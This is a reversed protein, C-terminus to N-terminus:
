AFLVPRLEQNHQYLIKGHSAEKDAPTGAKNEPLASFIYVKTNYVFVPLRSM